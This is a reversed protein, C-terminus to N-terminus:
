YIVKLAREANRKKQEPIRTSFGSGSINSFRIRIWLLKLVPDPDLSIQFGYGSGHLFVPDKRIRIRFGSLLFSQKKVIFIHTYRDLHMRFISLSDISSAFYPFSPSIVDGCCTVWGVSFPYVLATTLYCPCTEVM